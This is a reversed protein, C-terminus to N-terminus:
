KWNETSRLRPLGRGGRTEQCRTDLRGRLEPIARTHLADSRSGRDMASGTATRRSRGLLWKGISPDKLGVELLDGPIGHIRQLFEGYAAKGTKSYIAAVRPELRSLWGGRHWRDLGYNRDTSIFGLARKLDSETHPKGQEM